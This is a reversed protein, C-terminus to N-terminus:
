SNKFIVFNNPFEKEIEKKLLEEIQAYASLQFVACCAKATKVSHMYVEFEKAPENYKIGAVLNMQTVSMGNEPDKVRDLIDALKNRVEKRM